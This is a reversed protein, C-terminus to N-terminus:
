NAVWTQDFELAYVRWRGPVGKLRRSGREVFRTGSGVVLDRVTSSVLVEDAAALASVRAAVHVALGVIDDGNIEIEGTHLGGRVHLDLQSSQVLIQRSADIARCGTSRRSSAM